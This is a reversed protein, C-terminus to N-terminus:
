GSTAPGCRAATRRAPTRDRGAAGHAPAGGALRGVAEMKQSQRLQEELARRETIDEAIMEFGLTEGRDNKLATGSLRVTIQRGDKRKWRVEGTQFTGSEIYERIIAARHEPNVYVDKSLDVALLEQASAYGLMDVLAPNVGLFKGDLSSRYM